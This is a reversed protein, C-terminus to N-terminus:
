SIRPENAVLVDALENAWDDARKDGDPPEFGGRVRWRYYDNLAEVAEGYHCQNLAERLARLTAEPDM